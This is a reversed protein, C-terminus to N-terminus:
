ESIFTNSIKGTMKYIYIYGSISKAEPSAKQPIKNQKQSKASKVKLQPRTKIQLALDESCTVM